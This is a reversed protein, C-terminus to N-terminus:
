NSLESYDDFIKQLIRCEVLRSIDPNRTLLVIFINILSICTLQIPDEMGIISQGTLINGQHEELLGIKYLLGKPNTHIYNCALKYYPRLHDLSVADEIDKFTLKNKKNIKSAWGYDMKYNEGYKQLIKKFNSIVEDRESGTIKEFGIRESKQNFIELSKFDNVLTHDFFRESLEEDNNQLYNMIVSMEHLSRWRTLAGEAYGNLCLYYIEYATLCAQASIRILAEEKSSNKDAKANESEFIEECIYIIMKLIDLKKGWNFKILKMYKKHDKSRKRNISNFTKYLRKVVSNGMELISNSTLESFKEVMGKTYKKVEEDFENELIRIYKIFDNESEFKSKKLQHNSIRLKITKNGSIQKKM